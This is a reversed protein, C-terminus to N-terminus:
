WRNLQINLERGETLLSALQIKKADGINARKTFCRIRWAYWPCSNGSTIHAAYIDASLREVAVLAFLGVM